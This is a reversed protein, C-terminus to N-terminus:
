SRALLWLRERESKARSDVASLRDSIWTDVRVDQDLRVKSLAM